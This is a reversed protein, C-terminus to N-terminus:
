LWRRVSRLANLVPVDRQQLAEPLYKNPIGQFPGPQHLDITKLVLVLKSNRKEVLIRLGEEYVTANNAGWGSHWKAPNLKHIPWNADPLTLM